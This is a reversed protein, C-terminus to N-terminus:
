RRGEPAPPIKIMATMNAPSRKKFMHGEANLRLSGLFCSRIQASPHSNNIQKKIEADTDTIPSIQIIVTNNGPSRNSHIRSRTHTITTSATVKQHPIRRM